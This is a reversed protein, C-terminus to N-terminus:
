EEGVAVWRRVQNERGLSGAEAWVSGDISLQLAEANGCTVFLKGPMDLRMSEGARLLAEKLLLRQDDHIQIWVSNGQATFEYSHLGSRDPQVPDPLAPAPAPTVELEAAPPEVAATLAPTDTPEAPTQQEATQTQEPPLPAPAHEIPSDSQRVNFFLLLVIFAVGAAIAWKKHPAIPPDPMTFPRTLHYDRSKLRSIDESIDIDLLEAYQRLFGLAYVEGPLQSWDGSELADIYAPPLRLQGAVDVRDMHQKERERVLRACIGLKLSQADEEPADSAVQAEKEDTV